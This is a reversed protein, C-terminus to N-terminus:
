CDLEARCFCMVCSKLPLFVFLYGSWSRSSIYGVSTSLRIWRLRRLLDAAFDKIDAVSPSFAWRSDYGFTMVRVSPMVQPVLDRPWMRGNDATWTKFADGGLGHIYIISACIYTMQQTIIRRKSSM